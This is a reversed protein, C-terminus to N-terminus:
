ITPRRGDLTQAVHQHGVTPRKQPAQLTSVICVRIHRDAVWPHIVRSL